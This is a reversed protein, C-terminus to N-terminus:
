NTQQNFKNSSEIILGPPEDPSDDSLGMFEAYELIEEMDYGKDLLDEILNQYNRINASNIIIHNIEKNEENYEKNNMLYKEKYRMSVDDLIVQCLENFEEETMGNDKNVYFGDYVQVVKFGRELLEKCLDMYICSEHLFIESDYTNGIVDTMRNKMENLTMELDDDTMNLVNRDRGMVTHHRLKKISKDFYLKMAFLKYQDRQEKSDFEKGYMEKYLDIDNDLWVNFNLFHNIRYISSKVDFEMYNDKGFYGDLIEKRWVRNSNKGNDHEKSAVIGNTARIGIKSVLGGRSRTIKTNFRIGLDYDGNVYYRSNIEDALKQYDRIQPYRVTEIYETIEEDNVFPLRMHLNSNIHLGYNQIERINASNIIVHNIEENEKINKYYYNKTCIGERNAMDRVLDFVKKNMIYMKARNMDDNYANFQYDEDVCKILDIKKAIRIMNSVNQHNGFIEALTGTQALAIAKMHERGFIYKYVDVFALLMGLNKRYKRGLAKKLDDETTIDNRFEDQTYEKDEETRREFKPRIDRNVYNFEIIRNINSYNM